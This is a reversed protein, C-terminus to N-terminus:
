FASLFVNMRLMYFICLMCIFTFLFNHSRSSYISVSLDQRLHELTFPEGDSESYIDSGCDSNGSESPAERMRDTKATSDTSQAVIETESVSARIELEAAVTEIQSDTLVEEQTGDLNILIPPQRLCDVTHFSGEDLVTDFIEQTSVSTQPLFSSLFTSVNTADTSDTAVTPTVDTTSAIVTTATANLVPKQNQEEEENCQDNVGDYNASLEDEENCQDNTGDYYNENAGDTKNTPKKTGSKRIKPASERKIEQENKNRRGSHPLVKTKWWVEFEGMSYNIDAKKCIEFLFKITRNYQKFAKKPINGKKNVGAWSYNVLLQRSFVRDLLKYAARDGNMKKLDCCQM